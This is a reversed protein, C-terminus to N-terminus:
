RLFAEMNRSFEDFVKQPRYADAIRRCRSSITRWHADDQYLRRVMGAFQEPGTAILPYNKSGEYGEIASPTAVVPTACAFAELTKGKLGAGYRIPAISVRARSVHEASSPVGGIFGPLARIDSEADHGIFVHELDSLLPLVHDRYWRIGDSNPRHAYSGVFIVGHRDELGPTSNLPEYINPLLTTRRAIGNLELQDQESVAIVLDANKYAYIERRKENDGYDNLHGILSIEQKRRRFEVDVTDVVIPTGLKRLRPICYGPYWFELLALDSGAAQEELDVMKCINLNKHIPLHGRQPTFVVLSEARTRFFEIIQWFRLEGSSRTPDPLYRTLISVKSFRIM